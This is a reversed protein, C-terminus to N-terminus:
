EHTEEIEAGDAVQGGAGRLNGGLAQGIVRVARQLVADLACLLVNQFENGGALAIDQFERIGAEDGRIQFGEGSRAFDPRSGKLVVALNEKSSEEFGDPYM